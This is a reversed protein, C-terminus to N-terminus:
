IRFQAGAVSRERERVAHQDNGSKVVWGTATRGTIVGVHGRGKARQWVVICGVCPGPSRNGWRLWAVARNFAPGPDHWVQCRLWWGCWAPPRPGCDARAYTSFLFWFILTLIFTVAVATGLPMRVRM